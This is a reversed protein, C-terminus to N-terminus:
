QTTKLDIRDVVVGSCIEQPVESSGTILLKHNFEEENSPISLAKNKVQECIMNILQAKNETITIVLQQSPLPTSLKLKQATGSKQSMRSKRTCSKISYEYYRDFILCADCRNLRRSVYHWFNDVYDQITANFPWHLCWLIACGDIIIVNRKVSARTSQTVQLKNKLVSKSTSIRMNGNDDFVSTLLPLFSMTACIKYTLLDLQYWDGYILQTDYVTGTGFKVGKRSVAM